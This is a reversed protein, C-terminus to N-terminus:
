VVVKKFMTDELIEIKKDLPIEAIRRDGEIEKSIFTGVKGDFDISLAGGRDKTLSHQHGRIMVDAGIAKLSKEIGARGVVMELEESGSKYEGESDPNIMGWLMRKIERGRYEREMKKPIVRLGLVESERKYPYSKYDLLSNIEVLNNYHLEGDRLIPRPLLGHIGVVGNETIFGLPLKNFMRRSRQINQTFGRIHQEEIIQEGFGELPAVDVECNGRAIHVRDPYKIFLKLIINLTEVQKAGGGSVMDGLVALHVKEDALFEEIAKKLSEIDGHLDTLVLLREKEKKPILYFYRDRTVRDIRGGKFTEPITEKIKEKGKEAQREIIKEASLLTRRFNHYKQEPTLGKKEEFLNKMEQQLERNKIKEPSIIKETM